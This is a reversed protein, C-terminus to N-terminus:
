GKGDKRHKGIEGKKETNQRKIVNAIEKVARVM